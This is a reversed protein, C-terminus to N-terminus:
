FGLWIYPSSIFLRLNILLLIRRPVNHFFEIRMGWYLRRLATTFAGNKPRISITIRAPIVHEHRDNVVGVEHGGVTQAFKALEAFVKWARMIEHEDALGGRSWDSLRTTLSSIRERTV